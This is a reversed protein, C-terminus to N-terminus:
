HGLLAAGVLGAREVVLAGRGEADIPIAAVVGARARALRARGAGGAPGVTGASVDQRGGTRLGLAWGFCGRAATARTQTLRAGTLEVRAVGALRLGARRGSGERRGPGAIAGPGAGAGGRGRARAVQLAEIALAAPGRARRVRVALRPVR